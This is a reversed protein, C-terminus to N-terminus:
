IPLLSYPTTLLSYPTPLLSYPITLLSYPTPLLSYPTPLLIREGLSASAYPTSAKERLQLYTLSDDNIPKGITM